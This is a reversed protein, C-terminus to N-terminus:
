GGSSSTPRSRRWLDEERMARVVGDFGPFLTAGTAGHKALRRLLNAAETAPLVFKYLAKEYDDMAEVHANQLADDFSERRVVDLPRPAEVLRYLLHVGRQAALNRNGGYPTTVVEVVAKRRTVVEDEETDSDAPVIVGVSSDFAWVIIECEPLESESCRLVTEAAFYAAVWPSHSWDLLRTPVGHHQALALLALLRGPPWERVFDDRERDITALTTRVDYSDEPISLGARDAIKYFRRLFKLEARAQAWNTWRNFPRSQMPPMRDERYATPILPLDRGQGRFIWDGNRFQRATPSIAEVFEDASECKVLEYFRKKRVPQM